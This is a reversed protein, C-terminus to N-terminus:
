GDAPPPPFMDDAVTMANRPALKDRYRPALSDFACTLLGVHHVLFLYVHKVKRELSLFVKYLLKLFELYRLVVAGSADVDRLGVDEDAVTEEGDSDERGTVKTTTLCCTSANPSAM